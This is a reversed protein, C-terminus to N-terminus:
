ENEELFEYLELLRSELQEKKEFLEASKVYDAAYIEIEKELEDLNSEIKEVEEKAAKIKREQKRIEAQEKKSNLYDAKSSTTNDASVKTEGSQTKLKKYDCFQEYGGIFDSVKGDEFDLIRNALRSLFYRDHTVAIITGDFGLLAQELAERSNIDLHNTPEDLILVNMKSLILKCLTLRAKEGGSLMSVKKSIDDGKFLFLALANRIETQTLNDYNNWLEDLVTNDEFLEQNEQDYYGVKVNYGYEVVGTDARMKDALMKILTSKGCGNKGTIFVHERKHIEFSVNEFLKLSGYSKSLNKAKLVDNGSETGSNFQLRISEPLADPRDIKEMRDLMKMRSEAAIINRERNWRKQQEIYSEIRAIERQQNKYHREQIERDLKKQEVYRTYNGNYVKGKGNEIELIKTATKDLFYRDHSIIIVTKRYSRLFEELWEVSYTDLHNTPEDLVMIDPEKLILRVMALRTKQGGSLKSIRTDWMSEDFGMFKLTGKIRGRFEYGGERTFEDHLAAYRDALGNNGEEIMKRLFELEKEKEVLSSKALFTEGLVTGFEDFADEQALIGVTKDKAVYINGDTQTYEGTIIKFLTTKGAGNVGVIGLRDGDNLAFSVKKLVEDSGFTMNINECSISIM